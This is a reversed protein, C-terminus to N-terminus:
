QDVDPDYFYIRALNCMARFMDDKDREVLPLDAYDTLNPHTKNVRDYKEGYTWGQSRRAHMWREHSIVSSPAPNNIEETVAQIMSNRMNPPMIDWDLPIIEADNAFAFLRMVEHVFWARHEEIETFESM